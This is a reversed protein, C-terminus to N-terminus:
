DENRVLVAKQVHSEPQQSSVIMLSKSWPVGYVDLFSLGKNILYRHNALVEEDEKKQQQKMEIQEQIQKKM